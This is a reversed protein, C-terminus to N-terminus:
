TASTCPVMSCKKPVTHRFDIVIWDKLSGEIISQHYQGHQLFRKCHESIRDGDRLLEIGWAPESVKFDIRGEGACSWESSMGVKHGMASHFARYWEDQFQAEPNHNLSMRSARGQKSLLLNKRSFHRLVKESLSTITPYTMYPFPNTLTALFHIEIFRFGILVSFSSFAFSPAVYKEHLRSPLFCVLKASDTGAYDSHVWGMRYCMEVGPDNLDCEMVKECLVRCLVNVAIARPETLPPFSRNIPTNKLFDFAQREDDLVM